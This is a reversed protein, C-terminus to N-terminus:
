FGNIEDKQKQEVNPGQAEQRCWLAAWLFAPYSQHVQFVEMQLLFALKQSATPPDPKPM